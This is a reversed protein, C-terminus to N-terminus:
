AQAVPVEALVTRLTALFQENQERQGVTVRFANPLGFGAMPRVIVGQQLLADVLVPAGLPPDIVLLFNGQSPLCTLGLEWMRTYLFARERQVLERSRRRFTHDDLSAAAAVMPLAGTNFPLVAHMLYEILEPHAIGYGVRLNALGASKSFSRVVIVNRGQRVYRLSDAYDLDTVYDHYAEDFVVVVHEPLREMFEDVERQSLVFGTPNNPSCLWVIRTQATVADAMAPLDFHYDPRPDVRIARGGYMTTLLAYLPFTVRCTISEGDESLFSQAIVRLVDTAGSGVIFHQEALGNRYYTVLKRRLDYEAMGPYRHVKTLTDRLAALALPSPGLANENSGLKLVEGLGLEQRVQEPSKGAVYLPVLLLQPNLMLGNM